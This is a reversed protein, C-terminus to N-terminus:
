NLAKNVARQISHKIGIGEFKYLPNFSKGRKLSQRITPKQAIVKIKEEIDLIDKHELDDLSWGTKESVVQLFEERPVIPISESNCWESQFDYKKKTM